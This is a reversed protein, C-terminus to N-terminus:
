KILDILYDAAAKSHGAMNVLHRVIDMKADKDTEKRAIAVLGDANNQNELASAVSKRTEKDTNSGYLEVLLAGSKESKMNGLSRIARNKLAPDKESKAVQTLQDIAGMSGLNGLIQM